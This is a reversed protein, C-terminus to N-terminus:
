LSGNAAQGQRWAFGRQQPAREPPQSLSEPADGGILVSSLGRHVAEAIREWAPLPHLIDRLSVMHPATGFLAERLGWDPDVLLSGHQLVIGKRRWQASGALKLGRWALDARTAVAFCHAHRERPIWAPIDTQVGLNALAARLGDTLRQYAAMVSLHQLHPVAVAYTLDGQHLVAGGGSPRQVTELGLRSLRQQLDPTLTQHKGLSVAAPMWRYLRIVARGTALVQDTLATDRAMHTWGDAEEILAM